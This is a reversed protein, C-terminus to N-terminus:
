TPSPLPKEALAGALYEDAFDIRFEQWMVLHDSMQHTRWTRFATKGRLAAFRPADADRFVYDYFDFVGARATPEFRFKYRGCAIQDYLKDKRVNSGPLSQLAEPITFVSKATLAKMTADDRSFINFDGLLVLNEGKVKIKLGGRDVTRERTRKGLLKSLATIEALRRPDDASSTGWLIHVTCLAFKAWGAQWSTIFPTRAFQVTEFDGPIVLEGALGTFKVKRTDFLFAMREGNGQRGLTVDTCIFDWHKGLAHQLRHLADLDERVEQVAVLDFQDIIEAIYWIAEDLRRGGKGSDFERLNWTALLLNGRLDRAPIPVISGPHLPERFGRRLRQLGEIIPQREALPRQLVPFYYPV